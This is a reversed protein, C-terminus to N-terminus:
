VWNEGYSQKLLTCGKTMNSRALLVLAQVHFGGRDRRYQKASARSRAKPRQRALAVRLLEHRQHALRRQKLGRRLAKRTPGSLQGEVLGDHHGIGVEPEDHGFLKCADADVRARDQDLRLPAVRRGSNEGGRKLDRPGIGFTDHQDRWRVVDHRINGCEM